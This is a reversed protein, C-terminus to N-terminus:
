YTDIKVTNRLGMVKVQDILLTKAKLNIDHQLTVRTSRLRQLQLRSLDAARTLRSITAELDEVERLLAVEAEDRCLVM